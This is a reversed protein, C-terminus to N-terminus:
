RILQLRVVCFVTCSTALCLSYAILAFFWNPRSNVEYRLSNNKASINFVFDSRINNGAATIKSDAPIADPREGLLSNCLM